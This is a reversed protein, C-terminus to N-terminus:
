RGESLAARIQDLRKRAVTTAVRYKGRISRLAMMERELSVNNGDNRVPLGSVEQSAPPAAHADSTLHGDLTRRAATRDTSADLARSLARDFDIDVTRYRPTDVNAINSAVLQQRQSMVDLARELQRLLPEDVFNTPKM